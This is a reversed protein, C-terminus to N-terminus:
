KYLGKSKMELLSEEYKDTQITQNKAWKTFTAIGNEFSWEPQFGLENKIKATDAFNHRIDGIRYNGSIEMPVQVGYSKCLTQAITM